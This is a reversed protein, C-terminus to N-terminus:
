VMSINPARIARTQKRAALSPFLETLGWVLADVRDPSWGAVKSDFDITVSTMQDELDPFSGLHFVKGQEYLAAVPEARMAKGRTARVGKYPVTPDQAKIAAEVLDGGNNVEAIVRDAGLSRYLSVARRAWEEPRYKDSQDELIYGYGDAGLACAVIGTEDSGANTSVAPDVAIVIRRMDVPWSGDEKLTTRKIYSRRWLANEDDAVYEGHLFRKKAREPLANLDALYDGTLNAANDLPNVICHGFQSRDIPTEDQPDVGELWLRFTWHMRTTPNLDVYFRQSLQDGDVDQVVQALRSRLLTFASYRIESAENMYITAYENGLIREMAKEDNLGGVWIESGNPLTIYGFKENPEYTLGPFCLRLVVPLTAMNGRMISARASSGEQRVILHKSLPAKLARTIIAFIALFTKGSRSGGYLLCFRSATTYLNDWARQQGPNFQFSM